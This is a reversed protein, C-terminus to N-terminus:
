LVGWCSYYWLRVLFSQPFVSQVNSGVQPSQGVITMFFDIIASVDLVDLTGSGDADMNGGQAAIANEFADVAQIYAPPLQPASQEVIPPPPPTIINPDDEDLPQANAKQNSLLYASYDDRAETTGRKKVEPGLPRAKEGHEPDRFTASLKKLKM